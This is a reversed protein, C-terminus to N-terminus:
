IAEARVFIREPAENFYCFLAPCLWGEEGTEAHRYWNGEIPDARLWILVGQYEDFPRLSFSLKFGDEADPIEAVLADIMETIGSVFPERM